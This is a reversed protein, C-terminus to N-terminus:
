LLSSFFRRLISALWPWGPCAKLLWCVANSPKVGGLFWFSREKYTEANSAFTPNPEATELGRGCGKGLLLMCGVRLCPIMVEPLRFTNRHVLLAIM